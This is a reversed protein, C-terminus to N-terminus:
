SSENAEKKLKEFEKQWAVWKKAKHKHKRFWKVFKDRDQEREEYVTKSTKM